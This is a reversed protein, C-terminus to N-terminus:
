TVIHKFLLIMSRGSFSLKRRGFGVTASGAGSFGFDRKSGRSVEQPLVAMDGKLGAYKAKAAVAIM